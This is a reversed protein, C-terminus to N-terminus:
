SGPTTIVVDTTATPAASDAADAVDADDPKMRAAPTLRTGSAVRVLLVRHTHAYM